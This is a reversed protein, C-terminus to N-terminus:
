RQNFFQLAQEILYKSTDNKIDKYNDINNFENEAEKFDKEAETYDEYQQHKAWVDRHLIFDKYYKESQLRSKKFGKIPMESSIALRLFYGSDDNLSFICYKLPKNKYVIFGKFKDM